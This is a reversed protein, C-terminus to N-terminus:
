DARAGSRRVVDKWKRSEAEIYRAFEAPSDGVLDVGIQAFRTAVAPTRLVERVAGALTEVVAPPTGATTALGFWPTAEFGPVGQEALTPIAPEAKLRELEAVGIARLAGSRVHPLSSTTNDLMMQVQGSLLDTLAPTSGKYPVHVAELGTRSKLLEMALHGSSANGQSAYTAKGPNAKAWALLEPLTGAPLSRPVVLLLPANAVRTVPAFATRPDFPLTDYLAENVALPGPATMVLTHGDPAAKAVVDAGINGNAGPRNEIVVPQGFRRSLGEGIARALQDATGGPPYSVILRIPRSPFAAAQAAVRAPALGAALPLAAASGLRVLARRRDPLPRAPM